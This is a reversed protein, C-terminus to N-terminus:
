QRKYKPIYIIQPYHLHSVLEPVRKEIHIGNFIVIADEAIHNAINAIARQTCPKGKEFDVDEICLIKCKFLDIVSKISAGERAKKVIEIVVKEASVIKVDDTQNAIKHALRTKGCGSPGDIIFIGQPKALIKRIIENENM